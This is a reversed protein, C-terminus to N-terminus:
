VHAAHRQRVADTHTHPPPAHTHTTHEAESRSRARSADRSRAVCLLSQARGVALHTTATTATGYITTARTHTHTHTHPQKRSRARSAVRSRAVCPMTQARDVALRTGRSIAPVQRAPLASTSNASAVCLQRQNARPAEARQCLARWRTSLARNTARLCKGSPQALGVIFNSIFHACAIKISM